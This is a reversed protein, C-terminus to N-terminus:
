YKDFFNIVLWEKYKENIAKFHRAKVEKIRSFVIIAEAIYDSLEIYIENFNNNNKIFEEIQKWKNELKIVDVQCADLLDNVNLYDIIEKNPNIIDGLIIEKNDRSSYFKWKSFLVTIEGLIAPEIMLKSHLDNTFEMIYDDLIAFVEDKKLRSEEFNDKFVENWRTEWKEVHDLMSLLTDDTRDICLAIVQMLPPRFLDGEWINSVKRKRNTMLYYIGLITFLTGLGIGIFIFLDTFELRNEVDFVIQVESIANNGFKDTVNLTFRIFQKTESDINYTFETASTNLNSFLIDNVYLDISSINSNDTISWKLLISRKYFVTDAVPSIFDIEPAKYDIETSYNSINLNAGADKVFLSIIDNEPDYESLETSFTSQIYTQNSIFGAENVETMNNRYYVLRKGAFEIYAYFWAQDDYASFEVNLITETITYNFKSIVPAINDNSSINITLSNEVTDSAITVIIKSSYQKPLLLYSSNAFITLEYNGSNKYVFQLDGFEPINFNDASDVASGDLQLNVEFKLEIGQIIDVTDPTNFDYSANDISSTPIILLIFLIYIFRLRM